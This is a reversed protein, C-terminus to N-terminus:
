FIQSDLDVQLSNLYMATLVLNCIQSRGGVSLTPHLTIHLTSLAVILWFGQFKYQATDLTVSISCWGKFASNVLCQCYMSIMTDSCRSFNRVLIKSPYLARQSRPTFLSPPSRPTGEIPIWRTWPHSRPFPKPRLDQFSPHWFLWGNVITDFETLPEFSAVVFVLVQGNVEFVLTYVLVPSLFICLRNCVLMMELLWHHWFGDKALLDVKKPVYVWIWCVNNRLQWLQPKFGNGKVKSRTKWKRSPRLWASDGKM